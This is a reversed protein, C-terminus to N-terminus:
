KLSDGPPSTGDDTVDDQPVETGPADTEKMQLPPILGQDPDPLLAEIDGEPSVPEEDSAAKLFFMDKSYHHDMVNSKWGKLRPNVMRKTVYTYLPIFPVDALLLSETEFM